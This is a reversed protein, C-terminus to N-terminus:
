TFAPCYSFEFVPLQIGESGTVIIENMLVVDSVENGSHSFTFNVAATTSDILREIRVWQAHLYIYKGVMDEKLGDQCVVERTNGVYSFSLGRDIPFGGELHIYGDDHYLYAPTRSIPSVAYVTGYEADAELYVGIASTEEATVHVFRCGQGTTRNYLYLGDEGVDGALRITLPARANGPNYLLITKSTDSFGAYNLPPMMTSSILGTENLLYNRLSANPEPFDELAMEKMKAFPTFATLTVSFTRSYLTEEPGYRGAPYTKPEIIETPRVNWVMGPYDDFVLAGVRSRDLWHLIRSWTGRDM